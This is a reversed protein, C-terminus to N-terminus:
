SKAAVLPVGASTTAVDTPIPSASEGALSAAGEWALPCISSVGLSTTAVPSALDEQASCVLQSM